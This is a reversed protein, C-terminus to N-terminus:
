IGARTFEIGARRGIEEFAERMLDEGDDPVIVQWPALQAARQWLMEAAVRLLARHFPLAGHPDYWLLDYLEEDDGAGSEHVVALLDDLREGGVCRNRWDLEM